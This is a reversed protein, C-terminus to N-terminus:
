YRGVLLGGDVTVVQGTMYRAADSALFVIVEAIDDAEGVRGMPIFEAANELGAEDLKSQALFIHVQDDADDKFGKVYEMFEKTVDLRQWEQIDQKTAM